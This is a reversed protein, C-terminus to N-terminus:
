AKVPEPNFCFKESLSDLSQLDKSNYFFYEGKDFLLDDAM